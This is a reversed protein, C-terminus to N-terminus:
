IRLILKRSVEHTRDGHEGSGEFYKSFFSQVHALLNPTHFCDPSCFRLLFNILAHRSTCGCLAVAIAHVISGMHVDVNVIHRFVCCIIAGIYMDIIVACQFSM